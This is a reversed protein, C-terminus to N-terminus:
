APDDANLHFRSPYPPEVPQSSWKGRKCFSKAAANDITNASVFAELRAFRGRTAGFASESKVNDLIM